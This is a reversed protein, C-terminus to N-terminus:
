AQGNGAAKRKRNRKPKGCECTRKVTSISIGMEGAVRQQAASKSVRGVHLKAVRTRIQAHLAGTKKAKGARANEGAGRSNMATARDAYCRAYMYAGAIEFACLAVKEATAATESRAAGTAEQLRANLELLYHYLLVAYEITNSLAMAVLHKEDDWDSPICARKAEFTVDLSREITLEAPIPNPAFLQALLGLAKSPCDNGVRKWFVQREKEWCVDTRDRWLRDLEEPTLKPAQWPVKELKAM